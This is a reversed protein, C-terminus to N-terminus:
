LLLEWNQGVLDKGFSHHHEEEVLEFGAAQYIRRASTLVDNTWLTVRRYGSERAFRIAEEVLRRGIGLGRACPEVHLLRIKALGAADGEVDGNVLFIAGIPEGDMEAIFCIERAPDFRRLFTAVIEAVLAEFSADWGYERAYLLAERSVVWGMDGIRHPRLVYAARQRTEGDLVARMTQMAALLRRHRDPPLGDLVRAVEANAAEYLPAFAAQGADSLSLLVQRRDDASAHADVLGRDRFTKLMRSLYGADLGLMERLDRAAVSGEGRALEYLVRVEALSYASGLHGEDLAGVFRTYFRNFARMAEVDARPPGDHM